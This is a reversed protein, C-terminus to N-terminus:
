RPNKESVLYFLIGLLGIGVLGTILLCNMNVALMPNELFVSNLFILIGMEGGAQLNKELPVVCM